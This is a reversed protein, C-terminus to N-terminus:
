KAALAPDHSIIRGIEALDFDDSQCLRLVRVAVQPLTPLSTCRELRERVRPQVELVEGMVAMSPRALAPPDPPLHNSTPLLRSRSDAGAVRPARAFKAARAACRRIM